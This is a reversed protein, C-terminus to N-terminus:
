PDLRDVEQRIATVYAQDKVSDLNIEVNLRAGRRGARLLEAAVEVDSSANANGLDRVTGAEALASSCLRMMELPTEIAGKLAEQIRISRVQKEDDSGKPLHYADVVALYAEADLDLLAELRRAYDSCLSRADRLRQIEAETVTRAKPLGAVMGLLSAGLAGAIASASGGGPTPAPSRFDELLASLPKGALTM